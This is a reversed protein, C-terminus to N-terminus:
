FGPKVERMKPTFPQHLAMIDSSKALGESNATLASPCGGIAGAPLRYVDFSGAKAVLVYRSRVFDVLIRTSKTNYPNEANHIVLRPSKEHLLKMFDKIEEENALSITPNFLRFPNPRQSLFYLEANNPFVFIPEDAHSYEHIIEILETYLRLNASDIRLSNRNLNSHAMPYRKGSCVDWITRQRSQGACFVIGIICITMAALNWSHARPRTRGDSLLWLLSPLSLVISFYLYFPIQNFVSVLAFFVTVMPLSVNVISPKDLHYLHRLLCYGNIMPLFFLAIWYVGNIHASVGVGGLFNHAGGLLYYIFGASPMVELHVIHLARVFCDNLWASLAGHYLYYAVLPALGVVSGLSLRVVLRLVQRNSFTTNHWSWWLIGLPWAGFLCLGCIDTSAALYVALGLFMLAILFRAATPSSHHEPDRTEVLLYTLVGMAVFVGSLQRFLFVLMVLMGVAEVRWRRDPQFLVLCYLICITIFLCYLNPTPNAIQPFGLTAVCFSAVLATWFGRSRFTLFILCGQLMTIAMLPYRLSVLDKGFIAFAAAHIMHIYGPHFEEVDVHLVDGDLIREAVHAWHGEDPPMWSRDYFTGWVLANLLLVLLCGLGTGRRQSAGPIPRDNLTM